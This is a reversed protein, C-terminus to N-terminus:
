LADVAPQPEPADIYLERMARSNVQRMDGVFPARGSPAMDCVIGTLTIYLTKQRPDWQGPALLDRIATRSIKLVATQLAAQDLADLHERLKCEEDPTMGNSQM